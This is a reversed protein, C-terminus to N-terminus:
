KENLKKGRKIPLKIKNDEILNLLYERCTVLLITGLFVFVLFQIFYIDIFIALILSVIASVVFWITVLNKTSLELLTLVIILGLWIWIM